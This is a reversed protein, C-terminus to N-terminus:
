AAEMNQIQMQLREGALLGARDFEWNYEEIFITSNDDREFGCASEAMKAMDYATNYATRYLRNLTNSLYNYLGLRTFKTKYFEDLEEINEINKQHVELDKEAIQKRIDAAM